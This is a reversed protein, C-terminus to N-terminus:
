TNYQMSLSLTPLRKKDRIKTIVELKERNLKINATTKSYTSKIIKLHTGKIEQRELVKLTFAHQIKDLAKEVDLLIIMYNKKRQTQKYLSNCQHIKMHQVMGADRPHLM